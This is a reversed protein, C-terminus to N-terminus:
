NTEQNNKAQYSTIEFEKELTSTKSGLSAIAEVKAKGLIEKGSITWKVVFKGTNDATGGTTGNNNISGNPYTVKLRIDAEPETEITIKQPWYLYVQPKDVIINLKLDNKKLEAEPEKEKVENLTKLHEKTYESMEGATIVNSEGRKLQAISLTGLVGIICIGMFLTFRRM